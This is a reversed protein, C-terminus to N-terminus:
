EHELEIYFPSYCPSYRENLYSVNVSKYYENFRHNGSHIHGTVLLKYQVNFLKEALPKNGIHEWLRTDDELIIDIDGYAFPPDHSVIIDVKSPIKKFYDKLNSENRMFPWTGFEKCYPTGFITWSSGENDIYIKTENLLYTLKGKCAIRLDSLNREAIHEFYADHNGAVIFVHEVPIKEIWNAFTTEFWKKSKPKNFQIDLPVIDGAILMIDAPDIIEPLHGHFDSSAVIKIKM